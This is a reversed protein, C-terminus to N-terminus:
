NRDTAEVDLCDISILPLHLEYLSNLLGSLAAQDVLRGVLVSIPRGGDALDPAPEESLNLGDLRKALGADLKGCVRIRYIAPSSMSITTIFHKM